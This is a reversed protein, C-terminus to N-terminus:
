LGVQRLVPVIEEYPFYGLHRYFERGNKDLFVQTPIMYVGFKRGFEGNVRVDVFIVELKGKYDTSLQSMVPRMRECPICGVSGLELMVAKGDKKARLLLDDPNGADVSCSPLIMFILVSLILITSSRLNKGNKANLLKNYNM